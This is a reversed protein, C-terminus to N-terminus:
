RTKTNKLINKKIMGYNKNRKIERKEMQNASTSKEDQKFIKNSDVRQCKRKM